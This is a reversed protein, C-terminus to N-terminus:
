VLQEESEEEETAVELANQVVTGPEHRTADLCIAYDTIEKSAYKLLVELDKEIQEWALDLATQGIRLIMQHGAHDIIILECQLWEGTQYYALRQYIALQRCYKHCVNIENRFILEKRLRDLNGCTKLDSIRCRKRNFFDFKGKIGLAEDAIAFQSECEDFYQMVTTHFDYQMKKATEIIMEAKQYIEDTVENAFSMGAQELWRKMHAMTAKGKIGESKRREAIDIERMDCEEELETASMKRSAIQALPKKETLVIDVLKGIQLEKGKPKSPNLFEVFNYTPYGYVDFTAFTALSSSSIFEEDAFYETDTPFLTSKKLTSSM